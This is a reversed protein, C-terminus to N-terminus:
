KAIRLSRQRVILHELRLALKQNEKVNALIKNRITSALNEFELIKPGQTLWDSKLVKIVAAIDKQNIHQHGYPIV